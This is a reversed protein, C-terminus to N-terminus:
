ARHTERKEFRDRVALRAIESAPRVGPGFRSVYRSSDMSTDLPRPEVVPIDRLSCEVIQARPVAYRGYEEMVAALLARRSLREPGGLHYLGTAGARVMNLIGEAADGVDAPTFFQDTACLIREGRGLAQMWGTLICRPDATASVLKPLRVILWPAPLEALHSEVALKQRGYTLIPHVQEDERWRGRTGDFVADSSIFVPVIDLARLEGIVRIIGEVNVEGTRVPDKACADVSTIGALILAASPRPTAGRVLDRVSSSRLDFAVSGPTAHAHHTLLLDQTGKAKRLAPGLFGSGGLVLLM